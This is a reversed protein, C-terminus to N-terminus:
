KVEGRLVQVIREAAKGDWFMPIEGEKIEKNKIRGICSLIEMKDRGVLCNTGLKITVPRETNERMTLCPVKLVTTEEQIGGSDTIVFSTEKILKIFDIYGLPQIMQLNKLGEFKNLVNHVALMKKTRPHIPYIIKINKSIASLIDYIEALSEKSDVNSPRHLTLVCYEKTSVNLQRLINSKDIFPTHELLSDIMVNWVYFVKDKAVGEKELNELGSEESVFLYDSLSDTVVRNIEEPMTRDFSRLGSEVHAVKIGLKSAVLSCALTSNVDGVVILLEPKKELIVKEFAIMIQATQVAHSGSGINLYIDPNPINLNQFFVESMVFDYHQGTHVLIIEFTDKYKNFEKMLPAIKMFNPRAGAIIIIKTKM